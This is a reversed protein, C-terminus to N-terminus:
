RGKRRKRKAGPGPGGSLEGFFGSLAQLAAADVGCVIRRGRRTTRILGARCLEKVHHSLTSPAIGLRGGLKGVCAAGEEVECTTGPPCCTALRTFIKLRHSHALAKLMGALRDTKVTRYNSM